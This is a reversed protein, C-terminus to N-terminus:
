CINEKENVLEFFTDKKDENPRDKCPFDKEVLIFLGSELTAEIGVEDSLLWNTAISLPLVVSLTDASLETYVTETKSDTLLQYNFVVNNPFVLTERCIGENELAGLDSKRVRLRISNGELRLKM